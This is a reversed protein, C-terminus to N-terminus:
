NSSGNQVKLLFLHLQHCRLLVQFCYLPSKDLCSFYMNTQYNSFLLTYIQRYSKSLNYLLVRIAYCYKFWMDTSELKWNESPVATLITFNNGNFKSILSTVNASAFYINGFEDEKIELSKKTRKMEAAGIQEAVQQTCEAPPDGDQPHPHAIGGVGPQQGFPKAPLDRDQPDVIGGSEQEVQLRRDLGPLREGQFAVSQFVARLGRRKLEEARRTQEREGNVVQRDHEVLRDHEAGRHRGAPRIRQANMGRRHERGVRGRAARGVGVRRVPM